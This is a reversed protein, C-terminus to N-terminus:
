NELQAFDARASDLSNIEPRKDSETVLTPKGPPKILLDALQEGFVKKGIAKEMATIGLLEKKYILDEAFGAKLLKAAVLSEDSYKRNSRGEVLKFGPWRKGHNVSQDLAYAEVAEIWSTFLDVRGLIDAIEDEDLLEPKSFEYAALKLNEDALAKCTAKAKCFRCHNGPAFDGTGEFAKKALGVLENKAWALLESVPLEWSSFNDIRPQYITMRVRDIDYLYDYKHLAGLAYLMMQKNETASVAVGKGYKLDIIDLVGDAVIVSDVTGFGEPVYATLDIPQELFILADKSRQQAEAFRELVFVAYNEAHEQMAESYFKHEEIQKFLSKNCPLGLKLRLIMEGLHHAVTGEEAYDSTTSPFQQELRASPTCSLWREASSPSLIAHAKM